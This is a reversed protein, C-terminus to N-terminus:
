RRGNLILENLKQRLSEADPDGFPTDLTAVGNTNSSTGPIASNLQANTVEGPPGQSGDNGQPGQPGQPGDNGQPGQPGVPITSILDVVGQLQGRMEASSNPSGDAPLSPDYPM